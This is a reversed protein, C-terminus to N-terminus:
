GATAVDSVELSAYGALDYVDAWKSGCDLCHMNVENLIVNFGVDANEIRSSKCAPCRGGVTAVYEESSLAALVNTRSYDCEYDKMEAKRLDMLKALYEDVVDTDYFFGQGDDSYMVPFEQGTRLHRTILDQICVQHVLVCKGDGWGESPDSYKLQPWIDIDADGAGIVRGYGDYTGLAAQGSPDVLAIHSMATGPTGPCGGAMIPISCMPCHWSSFGM